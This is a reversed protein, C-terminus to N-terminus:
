LTEPSKDADGDSDTAGDSEYQDWDPTPNDPDYEADPADQAPVEEAPPLPRDLSESDLQSPYREGYAAVLEEPAVELGRGGVKVIHQPAQWLAWVEGQGVVSIVDVGGISRMEVEYGSDDALRGVFELLARLLGRDHEYRTVFANALDGTNLRGAREADKHVYTATHGVATNQPVWIEVDLLKQYRRFRWTDVNSELVGREPKPAGGCAVLFLIAVNVFVLRSAFVGVYFRTCLM